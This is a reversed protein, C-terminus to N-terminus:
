KSNASKCHYVMLGEIIEDRVKNLYVAEDDISEVWDIPVWHFHNDPSDDKRLKIYKEGDVHEVTGIRIRNAEQKSDKDKTYVIQQEKIKASDM